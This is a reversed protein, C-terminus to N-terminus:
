HTEPPPTVAVAGATEIIRKGTPEKSGDLSEETVFLGALNAIAEKDETYTIVVPDSATAPVTFVAASVVRPEDKRVLWLQYQHDPSPPALNSAVFIVKANEVVFANATAATGEANRFTLLKAGSSSLANLLNRDDNARQRDSETHEKFLEAEAQARSLKEQLDTQLKVAAPSPPTQRALLKEIRQSQQDLTVEKDSLERTLRQLESSARQEDLHASQRGAIWTFILLTVVILCIVILSSILIAPERVRRNRKPLTLVRNSLEAIRVLRARFDASPETQQLSNAFVLWLNMSRQVGRICVPCQEEIQKDIEARESKPLLGLVYRDYADPSFGSCSV